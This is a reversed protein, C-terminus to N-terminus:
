YPYIKTRKITEEGNYTALYWPELPIEGRDIQSLYYDAAKFIELLSPLDYSGVTVGSSRIEYHFSDDIKVIKPYYPRLRSIYIFRFPEIDYDKFKPIKSCFAKLAERYLCAQYIYKYKFITSSAFYEPLDTGTKVDYPSITMMDHDISIIDLMSKCQMSEFIYKIKYQYYLEINNREQDKESMFLYKTWKHTMLTSAIQTAENFIEPSIIIKDKNKVLTEIYNSCEKILYQRKTEPKWSVQSGSNSYIDKIQDDSLNSLDTSINNDLIYDSIKKFQDSPLKKDNVFVLDSIPIDRQTTLLDVLSGFTFWEKDEDEKEELLSKPDHYINKIRSYSLCNSARYSDLDEFSEYIKFIGREAVSDNIDNEMATLSFDRPLDINNECM